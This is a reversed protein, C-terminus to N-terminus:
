RITSALLNKFDAKLSRAFTSTLHHAHDSYVIVGDRLSYCVNRGCFRHSLDVKNVNAFAGAVALDPAPVPSLARSRPMACGVAAGPRLCSMLEKFKGRPTSRVVAVDIDAKGFRDLLAAFGDRWRKLSQARELRQGTAPDVLRKALGVWSSIVILAPREAIFRRVVRERWAACEQDVRWRKVDYVPVLIPPCSNRTWVQLSWDAEKAAADLGDFLHRAYSDGFLMVTRRGNPAGFKCVPLDEREEGLHCGETKLVPRDVKAANVLRLLAAQEGGYLGSM